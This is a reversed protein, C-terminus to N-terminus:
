KSGAGQTQDGGHRAYKRRLFVILSSALFLAIAPIPSGGIVLVHTGIAGLMLTALCAAAVRSLSPILLGVAGALEAIGIVVRLWQGTGLAEVTAVPLPDALFKRSATFTFVAALIIQLSWALSLRWKPRQSASLDSM